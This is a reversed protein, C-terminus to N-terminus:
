EGSGTPLNQPLLPWIEQFAHVDVALNLKREYEATLLVDEVYKRFHTCVKLQGISFSFITMSKSLAHGIM